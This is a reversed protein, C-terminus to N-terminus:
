LRNNKNAEVKAQWSMVPPLETVESETIVDLFVPERTAFAAELAPELEDASTIRHATMGFGRAVLAPDHSSFDVSFFKNDTHISQLAKIWGFCANNFHILVAPIQLRVLTELEGASMGLSGDGFLGVLRAEPNAFHAGVLGPIAYGLGGFARPIIFTSGDGPLRLYRTIHPTPTGADSIVISPRDLFRNLASVLRQPKIPCATSSLKERSEEWFVQRDRNLSAVWPERAEPIPNKELFSKMLINLDRLVLRADGAVSLHNDTNNGLMVPDLDVQLIKRNPDHAPLTWNVSSVSGIKCGVYFLTDSEEIARVAHPHYGNDGIVGLALPHNDPLIGQGSITTVVPVELLQCLTLIEKQAQSHKAGGGAVIVPRESAGLCQTISELGRRSGRTRYAPYSRCESEAYLTHEDACSKYRFAEQPICLHVAGPRGTTAMRFARRIIEPIRAGDKVLCSWKTVPAFLRECDLETITKKGAGSIPIDNTILIVPVSSADAEAV